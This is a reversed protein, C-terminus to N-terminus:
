TSLPQELTLISATFRRNSLAAIGQLLLIDAQAQDKLGLLLGLTVCSGSSIPQVSGASGWAFRRIQTMKEFRLTM